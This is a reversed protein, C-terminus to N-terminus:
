VEPKETSSWENLLRVTRNVTVNFKRYLKEDATLLACRERFALALYLCDYVPHTHRLSFDLAEVILQEVPVAPIGLRMFEGFLKAAHGARLESRRVKKSLTNAVEAFILSPALVEVQRRKWHSYVRRAIESDSEPVLWKVAVSSDLVLIM